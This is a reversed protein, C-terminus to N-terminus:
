LISRVHPQYRKEEKCEETHHKKIHHTLNKENKFSRQCTECTFTEGDRHREEHRERLKITDLMIGCFSCRFKKAVNKSHITSCKANKCYYHTLRKQITTIILVLKSVTISGGITLTRQRPLHWVLIYVCPIVFWGTTRGKRRIWTLWGISPLNSSIGSRDEAFTAIAGCRIRKTITSGSTSWGAATAPSYQAANGAVSTPSSAPTHTSTANWTPRIATFAITLLSTWM